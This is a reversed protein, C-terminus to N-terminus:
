LLQFRSHTPRWTQSSQRDRSRLILTVVIIEQLDSANEDDASCLVTSDGGSRERFGLTLAVGRSGRRSGRTAGKPRSLKFNLSHIRQTKQGSRRATKGIMP